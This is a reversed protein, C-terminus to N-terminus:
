RRTSPPRVVPLTLRCRSPRASQKRYAKAVPANSAVKATAVAPAAETLKAPAPPAAAAPTARTKAAGSAVWTKPVEPGVDKPLSALTEILGRLQDLAAL